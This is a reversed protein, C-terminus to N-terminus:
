RAACCRSRAARRLAGPRGDAVLARRRELHARRLLDAIADAEAGASDPVTRVEVPAPTRRAAVLERHPACPQERRCPRAAPMRRRGRAVAALLDRAPRPPLHAARRGARAPRGRTRFRTPSSSSAACTPAASARLDVPRPRRGRDPRPRRRRAGCCGSRRRTPTRTSTSSSRTTARARLGGAVEAREALLVARHVLEAYDLSARRPRARRPVRRPVRGGRVWDARGHRRGLAALGRPDLGLERRAPSCPACRTPSARPDHAGARLEDPWRVARRRELEGALLERVALDQEPGSLLRLPERSLTPELQHARVLAYAFSHFTAGAARPRAAAAPATIRERLEGAAKRSFTLVLVQEPDCRRPARGPRRRGRRADHDQRHGPRRARAAPRRPPRGGPRSASISLPADVAPPRGAVVSYSPM